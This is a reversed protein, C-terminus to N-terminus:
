FLSEVCRNLDELLEESYEYFVEAGESFRLLIDNLCPPIYPYLKRLNVFRWKDLISFDTPDLRDWLDGYCIPDNLISRAHHFGKGVAYILLNAMGLLDLGYPNEPSDYDYDFDIWVGQGSERELMLHDTRIDGHKLGHAHMHVIGEFAGILTKLIGPLLTEIYVQHPMRLSAIYNYLNEGLVVDLVRVNNGKVDRYTVGQMFGTRGKVLELVRSEKEPNRYCRIRVGSLTIEFSEFFTLKIIKKEGTELDEARKVWFKPGEIGFRSEHEHGTVRYCRGSLEIVDGRDISFIETTDTFLRGAM